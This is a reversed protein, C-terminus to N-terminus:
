ILRRVVTILVAKLTVMPTTHATVATDRTIKLLRIAEAFGDAAKPCKSNCVSSLSCKDHPMSPM